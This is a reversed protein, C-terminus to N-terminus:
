KALISDLSDLIKVYAELNKERAKFIKNLLIAMNKNESTKIKLGFDELTLELVSCIKFFTDLSPFNQGREINSIHKESINIKEALEIQSFKHNIRAQKIKSGVLKKDDYLM